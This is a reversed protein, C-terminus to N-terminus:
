IVGKLQKDTLFQIQPKRLGRNYKPAFVKKLDLETIKKLIDQVDKKIFIKGVDKATM